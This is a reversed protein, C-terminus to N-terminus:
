GGPQKKNEKYDVVECLVTNLREIDKAAEEITGYNKGTIDIKNHKTYITKGDDSIRFNDGAYNGRTILVQAIKNNHRIVGYFTLKM